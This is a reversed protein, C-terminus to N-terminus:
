NISIGKQPYISALSHHAGALVNEIPVFLYREQDDTALKWIGRPTLAIMLYTFGLRFPREFSKRM